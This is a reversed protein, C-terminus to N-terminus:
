GPLRHTRSPRGLHELKFFVNLNVKFKLTGCTTYFEPSMLVQQDANIRIIINCRDLLILFDSRM